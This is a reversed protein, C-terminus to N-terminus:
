HDHAGGKDFRQEQFNHTRLKQSIQSIQIQCRYRDMSNGKSAKRNKM